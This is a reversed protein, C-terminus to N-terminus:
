EEVGSVMARRAVAELSMSAVDVLPDQAAFQQLGEVRHSLDEEGAVGVTGLRTFM